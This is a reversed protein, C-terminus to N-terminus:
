TSYNLNVQMLFLECDKKCNLEFVFSVNGIHTSKSDFEHGKFGALRLILVVYVDDTHGKGSHIYDTSFQWGEKTVCGNEVINYQYKYLLQWNKPGALNIKSISVHFEAKNGVEM